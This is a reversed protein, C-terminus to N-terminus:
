KLSKFDSDKKMKNCAVSTKLWVFGVFDTTENRTSFSITVLVM